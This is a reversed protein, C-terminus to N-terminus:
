AVQSVIVDSVKQDFRLLTPQRPSFVVIALSAEDKYFFINVTACEEKIFRIVTHHPRMILEGCNELVYTVRDQLIPDLSAHRIFQM